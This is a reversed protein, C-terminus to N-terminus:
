FETQVGLAELDQLFIERAEEMPVVRFKDNTRINRMEFEFMYQDAWKVLDSVWQPRVAPLGAKEYIAADLRTEMAAIVGPASQNIYAKIPRIIDGMVFEHADHLIGYLRVMDAGAEDAYKGQRLHYERAAVMGVSCSHEATTYPRVMGGNFRVSHSLAHAIDDWTFQDPRPAELHVYRGSLVGVVLPQDKDVQEGDVTYNMMHDTM